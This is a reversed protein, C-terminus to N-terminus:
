QDIVCDDTQRQLRLQNVWEALALKLIDDLAPARRDIENALDRLLWDIECLIDRLEGLMNQDDGAISLMGQVDEPNFGAQVILGCIGNMREFLFNIQSKASPRSTTQNKLLSKLKSWNDLINALNDLEATNDLETFASSTEQGPVRILDRLANVIEHDFRNRSARLLMDMRGPEVRDIVAEVVDAIALLKALQSIQMSKLGYPYGSGDLREHHQLVAMSVAAPLETIQSLLVYGTIPHVHVYRREEPSILHETLLIAPDTHLEGIDHCLAALLISPYDTDPLRLLQALAFAIMATRLSHQFLEPRTGRMVTLRTELLTPLALKALEHKIALADGGRAALQRMLADRDLLKGVERSLEEADVASELSLSFDISVSLKHQILREFQKSNIRAGKAILKMGNAAFIDNKVVVEQQEGLDTIARLYHPNEDPLDVLDVCPIQDTM